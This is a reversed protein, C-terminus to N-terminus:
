VRWNVQRVHRQMTPPLQLVHSFGLLCSTFICVGCLFAVAPRHIWVWPRRATLCGHCWWAAWIWNWLLWISSSYKHEDHLQSIIDHYWGAEPHRSTNLRVGKLQFFYWFSQPHLLQIVLSILLLLFRCYSHNITHSQSSFSHLSVSCSNM